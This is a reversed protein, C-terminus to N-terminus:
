YIFSFATFLYFTLIALLYIFLLSVELVSYPVLSFMNVLVKWYSSFASPPDLELM